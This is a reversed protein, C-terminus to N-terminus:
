LTPNDMKFVFPKFSTFGIPPNSFVRISASSRPLVFDACRRRQYCARNPEGKGASQLRLRILSGHAQMNELENLHLKSVVELPPNVMIRINSMTAIIAATQQMIAAM